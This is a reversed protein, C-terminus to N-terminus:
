ETKGFINEPFDQLFEFLLHFLLILFGLALFAGSYMFFKLIPEISIMIEQFSSTGEVVAVGKLIGSGILAIWFCLLSINIIWYPIIIWWSKRWSFHHLIFAVLIMSNIGITSGMAHAVTVHTGHTYVNIAPVSILIALALNLFVWIDSALLFLYPHKHHFKQATTLTGKWKWIIRGIIFLETMSIVYAINGIWPSAPVAYIHHAWNFFLNTLGVFYLAFAIGSKAYSDEGSIKEMVYLGAGYVLMNWSGVLSGYSKWQITLERVVSNSFYDFIWSNAELFTVFFIVIGTSWMWLYVPWNKIKIVSSFFVLGFFLWSILIPISLVPPFEWYERGGFTGKLYSIIILIGTVVYIIWHIFGAFQFRIIKKEELYNYVAGIGISFIWSVALSVHLPRAKYFAIEPIFDPFIFQVAALVGFLLALSLSSIGTIIFLRGIRIKM